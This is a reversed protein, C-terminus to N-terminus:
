SPPLRFTPRLQPHEPDDNEVVTDARQQPRVTELYLRQAPFYRQVYRAEVGASSGFLSQDRALARQLAVEFAVDVFVRYDWMDDLEPRLLFIGDFLLVANERARERISPLPADTQHDFIAGQYLRSGGPGLPLLLSERLAAYDFSDEYYGKASDGGRQYREARSRHFGDLSARIVPRGRAEIPRVLEDALTTKGAADIGDIAVRLPHPPHLSVIRRALRVLVELREVLLAVWQPCISAVGDPM